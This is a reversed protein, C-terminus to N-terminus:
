SFFKEQLNNLKDDSLIVSRALLFIISFRGQFFLVKVLFAILFYFDHLFFSM